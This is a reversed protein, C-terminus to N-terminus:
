TPTSKVINPTESEQYYPLLLDQNTLQNRWTVGGGSSITSVAISGTSNISISITPNVLVVVTTSASATVRQSGVMCAQYTEHINDVKLANEDLGACLVEVYDSFKVDLAVDLAKAITLLTNVSVGGYDTDELRSVVSQLKGIKDGFEKQSLGAKERLARIQIAIRGKVFGDIYSDRYEKDLFPELNELGVSKRERPSSLKRSRSQDVVTLQLKKEKWCSKAEAQQLRSRKKRRISPGKTRARWYFWFFTAKWSSLM